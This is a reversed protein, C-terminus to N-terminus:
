NYSVEIVWLDYIVPVHNEPDRKDVYYYDANVLIIDTNETGDDWIPHGLSTFVVDTVNVGKALGFDWWLWRFWSPGAYERSNVETAHLHFTTIWGHFDHNFDAIFSGNEESYSWSKVPIIGNLSEIIVWGYETTNDNLDWNLIPAFAETFSEQRIAHSLMDIRMRDLLALNLFEPREDYAEQFDNIAEQAAQIEDSDWEEQAERLEEELHVLTGHLTRVVPDWVNPIEIDWTLLLQYINQNRTIYLLTPIDNAYLLIDKSQLIWILIDMEERPYDEYIKLIESLAAINPFLVEWWEWKTYWHRTFQFNEWLYQCFDRFDESFLIEQKGNERTFQFLELLAPIEYTIYFQPYVKQIDEWFSDFEPIEIGELISPNIRLIQATQILSYPWGISSSWREEWSISWVSIHLRRLLRLIQIKWESDESVLDIWRVWMDGLATNLLILPELSGDRKYSEIIDFLDLPQLNRELIQPFNWVFAGLEWLFKDEELDQFTDKILHPSSLRVRDISIWIVEHMRVYKWSDVWLEIFFSVIRDYSSRNRFFDRFGMRISYLQPLYWWLSAAVRTYEESTFRTYLDDDWLNEFIGGWDYESNWFIVQPYIKSINEKRESVQQWYPIDQEYLARWIIIDLMRNTSPIDPFVRKIEQWHSLLVIELESNQTIAIYINVDSYLNSRQLWFNEAFWNMSEWFHVDELLWPNDRNIGAVIDPSVDGPFNKNVNQYLCIFEQSQMEQLRLALETKFKEIVSQEVWYSWLSEWAWEIIQQESFNEFSDAWESELIRDSIGFIININLDMDSSLSTLIDSIDLREQILERTEPINEFSCTEHWAMSKIYNSIINNEWIRSRM